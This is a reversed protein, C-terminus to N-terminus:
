HLEELVMNLFKKFFRLFILQTLRKRSTLYFAAPMVSKFLLYRKTIQTLAEATSRKLQFGFQKKYLVNGNKLFNYLSNFMARELIKSLALLVSIPRYNEISEAEYIPKFKAHKLCDAFIGKTFSRSVLYSVPYAVFNACFKLVKAPNRDLGTAKNDDLIQM